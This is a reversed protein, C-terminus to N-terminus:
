TYKISEWGEKHKRVRSLTSQRFVYKTLDFTIIIANYPIGPMSNTYLNILHFYFIQYENQDEIIM